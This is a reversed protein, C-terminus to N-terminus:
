LGLALGPWGEPDALPAPACDPVPCPFASVFFYGGCAKDVAARSM